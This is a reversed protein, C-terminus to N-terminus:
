KFFKKVVLYLFVLVPWIFTTLTDRYIFCNESTQEWKTTECSFSARKSADLAMDHLIERAALLERAWNHTTKEWVIWNESPLDTVKDFEEQVAVLEDWLAAPLPIDLILTYNEFSRLFKGYDVIAHHQRALIRKQQEIEKESIWNDGFLRGVIENALVPNLNRIVADVRQVNNGMLANVVNITINRKLHEILKNVRKQYSGNTPEFSAQRPNVTKLAKNRHLLTEYRTLKELWSDNSLPRFLDTYWTVIPPKDFFNHELPTLNKSDERWKNVWDFIQENLIPRMGLKTSFSETYLAFYSGIGDIVLEEVAREVQGTINAIRENEYEDKIATLNPLENVTEEFDAYKVEQLYKFNKYYEVVREVLIENGCETANAKLHNVIDKYYDDLIYNFVYKKRTTELCTHIQEMKQHLEKFTAIETRITATSINIAILESLLPDHVAEFKQSIEVFKELSQASQEIQLDLPTTFNIPSLIPGLAIDLLNSYRNEVLQRFEVFSGQILRFTRLKFNRAVLPKFALQENLFPLFQGTVFEVHLLLEDALSINADRNRQLEERVKSECTDETLLLGVGGKYFRINRLFYHMKKLMMLISHQPADLDDCEYVIVLKIFEFRELADSLMIAESMKRYVDVSFDDILDFTFSNTDNIRQLIECKVSGEFGIFLTINGTVTLVESQVGVTILVNKIGSSLLLQKRFSDM